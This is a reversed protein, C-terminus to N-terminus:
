SAVKSSFFCDDYVMNIMIISTIIINIIVINIIVISIIVINMSQQQTSTLNQQVKLPCLGPSCPQPEPPGAYLIYLYCPWCVLYVPLLALM